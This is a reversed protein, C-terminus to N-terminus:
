DLQEKTKLFQIEPHDQTTRDLHWANRALFVPLDDHDDALAAANKDTFKKLAANDNAEVWRATM